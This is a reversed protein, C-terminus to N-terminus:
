SVSATELAPRLQNLGAEIRAILREADAFAGKEGAVELEAALTTLSPGCLIAAAGKFCHAAREIRTGDRLALANRMEQLREPYDELFMGALEALFEADGDYTLAPATGAAFGTIVRDIEAFLHERRIPKAVYGDMSARECRERDGQMAHATLAIIPTHRGNAVELRRIEGTAEIGGMEPMQLDMLILDFVERTFADVAAVGTEALVVSHGARELLHTALRQNVRNDEALLVRLARAATPIGPTVSKEVPEASRTGLARGIAAFLDAQSVPKIVYASVDLTKCRKIDNGHDASSLMLITPQQVALAQRIREALEFGDMDPMHVDLLALDFPQEMRAAEFMLGLAEAGGAALVTEVSWHRLTEELIKRNTANDDVILVRRGALMEVTTVHAVSADVHGPLFPLGVSFRSGRGSESDVSLSGGMLAVLKASITLGLGTGGYRRTTTGDAQSFADFILRQKEAPIGIGTDTVEFALHVKGDGEFHSVAVVVEGTETFKVANGVLNVLVQRLRVPDGMLQDPVDPRVHLLLELGKQDARVALPKAIDAVLSRLSFDVSEVTLKGAEIKSFDLIDNIIHMLSDACGKVTELYDRQDARLDTDLALETMGIVGNMPTRIEHSMNALFESKSRSAAEAAEKAVVLERTRVEVQEELHEGHRRLQIDQEEIQELMGNFDDVLRGLEDNSAKEARVTYTRATSITRATEALRLIPASIVAQLKASLLLAVISSVAMIVAFVVMYGRVREDLESFDSEVCAVGIIENQLVIPRSVTLSDATFVADADLGTCRPTYPGGARDFRAVVQLNADYIAAGRIAPQARLRGLIDAAAAGDDFTVAAASNGGVIDTVATLKAVLARRSTLYDYVGFIASAVLLAILATAMTVITLKRKISLNALASMFM